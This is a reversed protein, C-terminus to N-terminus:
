QQAFFYVRATEGVICHGISRYIQTQLWHAAAWILTRGGHNDISTSKRLPQPLQCICFSPVLYVWIKYANEMNKGETCTKLIEMLYVASKGNMFKWHSRLQSRCLHLATPSLYVVNSHKGLPLTHDFNLLSDARVSTSSGAFVGLTRVWELWMPYWWLHDGRRRRNRMMQVHHSNSTRYLWSTVCVM